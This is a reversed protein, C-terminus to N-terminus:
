GFMKEGVSVMVGMKLLAVITEHWGKKGNGIQGIIM